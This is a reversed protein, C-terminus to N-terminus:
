SWGCPSSMSVTRMTETHRTSWAPWQAVALCSIVLGAPISSGHAEGVVVWVCVDGPEGRAIRVVDDALADRTPQAVVVARRVLQDGDLHPVGAGAEGRVQEFGEGCGLQRVRGGGSRSGGHALAQRASATSPQSTCAGNAGPALLPISLTACVAAVFGGLTLLLLKRM